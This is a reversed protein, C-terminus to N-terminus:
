WYWLIARTGLLVYFIAYPMGFCFYHLQSFRLKRQVAIKLVTKSMRKEVLTHCRELQRMLGLTILGQFVGKSSWGIQGLLVSHEPFIPGIFILVISMLFLATAALTLLFYGSCDFHELSKDNGLEKAATIIKTGLRVMRLLSLSYIAAFFLYGLSYAAFSFGNDVNIVDVTFLIAVCAYSTALCTALVPGLSSTKVRQLKRQYYNWWKKAAAVSRLVLILVTVAYVPVLPTDCSGLPTREFVRDTAFGDSCNERNM